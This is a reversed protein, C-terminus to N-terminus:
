KAGREELINEASRGCKQKGKQNVSEWVIRNQVKGCKKNNTLEM